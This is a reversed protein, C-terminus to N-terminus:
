LGAIFEEKPLAVGNIRNYLGFNGYWLGHYLLAIIVVLNALSSIGHWYSFQKNLKRM